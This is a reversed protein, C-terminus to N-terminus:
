GSITIGTCPWISQVVRCLVELWPNEAACSRRSCVHRLCFIEQLLKSKRNVPRAIERRVTRTSLCSRRTPLCPSWTPPSLSAARARIAPLTSAAQMSSAEKESHLVLIRHHPRKEVQLPQLPPEGPAGLSVGLEIPRDIDKPRQVSPEGPHLSPGPRLSSRM